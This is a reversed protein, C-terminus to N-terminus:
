KGSSHGNIRPPSKTTTTRTITPRAMATATGTANYFWAYGDEVMFTRYGAENIVEFPAYVRSGLLRGRAAREELEKVRRELERLKRDDPCSVAQANADIFQALALLTAIVGLFRLRM